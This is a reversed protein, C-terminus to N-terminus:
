KQGRVMIAPDKKGKTEIEGFVPWWGFLSKVDFLSLTERNDLCNVKKIKGPKSFEKPIQHLNLECSGIFFFLLSKFTLNAVPNSHWSLAESICSYVSASNAEIFSAFSCRSAEIFLPKSWHVVAQWGRYLVVTEHVNFCIRSSHIPWFTIIYYRHLRWPQIHRQGLDSRGSPPSPTRWHYGFELLSASSPIFCLSYSADYFCRWSLIFM